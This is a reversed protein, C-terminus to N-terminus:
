FYDPMWPATGAFMAALAADNAESGRLLGATRLQSPAYRGTYLTALGRLELETTGAGAKEARMKGAGLEFVWNGSNEPLLEDVLKLEARATVSSSYGREELAEKVRVIRLMWDMRERQKIEQTQQLEILLPDDPAAYFHVNDAVSRHGGFFSIFARAAEANLCVLDRVHLDFHFSGGERKQFYITYGIPEGDKEAVYTLAPNEKPTRKAREWIKENRDLCGNEHRYRKAYLGALLEVDDASAPRVTVDSKVRALSPIPFTYTYRSGAFEWGLNRYLRPAAPYLANLPPGQEFNEKLNAAMLERAYGRSRLEPSVAVGAIGWCPVSNGGYYQGMDYIVLGAKVGDERLVRVGDGFAEVWPQFVELTGGFSQAMAAAYVRCEAAGDPVGYRQQETM